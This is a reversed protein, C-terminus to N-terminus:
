PFCNLLLKSTNPTKNSASELNLFGGDFAVVLSVTMCPILALQYLVAMMKKLSSLSVQLPLMEERGETKRHEQDTM